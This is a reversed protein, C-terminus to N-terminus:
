NFINKFSMLEYALVISVPVHNKACMTFWKDYVFAVKFLPMAALQSIEQYRRKHCRAFLSSVLWM